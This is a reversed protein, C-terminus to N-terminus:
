TISDPSDAILDCGAIASTAKIAFIAGNPSQGSEAVWDDFASM